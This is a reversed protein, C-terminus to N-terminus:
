WQKEKEIKETKLLIRLLVLGSRHLASMLPLLLLPFLTCSQLQLELFLAQVLDLCLCTDRTLRLVGVDLRLQSLCGRGRCLFGLLGDDFGFWLRWLCSSLRENESSNFCSM